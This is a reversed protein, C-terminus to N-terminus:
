SPICGGYDIIKPKRGDRKLDQRALELFRRSHEDQLDYEDSFDRMIEVGGRQIIQYQPYGCYTYITIQSFALILFLSNM